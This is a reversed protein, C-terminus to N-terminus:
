LRPTSLRHARHRQQRLAGEQLRYQRETSEQHEKVQWLTSQRVYVYAMREHHATTIHATSM